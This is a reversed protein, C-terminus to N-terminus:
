GGRNSRSPNPFVLLRAPGVGCGLGVKGQRLILVPGPSVRRLFPRNGEDSREMAQCVTIRLRPELGRVNDHDKNKARGRAGAWVRPVLAKKREGPVGCSYM